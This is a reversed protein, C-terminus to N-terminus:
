KCVCSDRPTWEKNAGCTIDIAGPAGVGRRYGTNCTYTVVEGYGFMTGTRAANDLQGPDACIIEAFHIQIIKKNILMYAKM